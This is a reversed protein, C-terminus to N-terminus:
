TITTTVSVQQVSSCLQFCCWSTCSQHSVPCKAIILWQCHGAIYRFDYRISLVISFLQSKNATSSQKTNRINDTLTKWVVWWWGTITYSNDLNLCTLRHLRHCHVILLPDWVMLLLVQLRVQYIYCRVSKLWLIHLEKMCMLFYYTNASM